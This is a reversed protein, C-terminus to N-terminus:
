AFPDKDPAPVPIQFANITLSVICYYGAIAVIEVLARDGLAAQAAAYVPKSVRRTKILEHVFAYVHREDDKAFNPTEGVRLSEVIAPDLGAAIGMPGHMYFEFGSQWHAGVILIALESLRAPLSTGFRCVAGLAQAREALQPSQLWVRLPGQVAGRPGSAIMDHVRRQEADLQDPTFDAIRPASFDQSM